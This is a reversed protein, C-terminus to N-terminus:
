LDLGFIAPPILYCRAPGIGPLTTKISYRGPERTILCGYELLVRAVAQHDFGQCAEDKFIESMVFYEFSVNEGLAAPM